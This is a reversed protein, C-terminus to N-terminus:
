GTFVPLSWNSCSCIRRYGVGIAVNCGTEAMWAQSNTLPNRLICQGEPGVGPFAWGEEGIEYESCTLGLITFPNEQAFVSENTFFDTNRTCYSYGATACADDCSDEADALVYDYNGPPVQGINTPSPTNPGSGREVSTTACMNNSRTDIFLQEITYPDRIVRYCYSRHTGIGAYQERWCQQWPDHYWSETRPAQTNFLCWNECLHFMRNAQAERIRKTISGDSDSGCFRTAAVTRVVNKTYFGKRNNPCYCNLMIESLDDEQFYPNCAVNKQYCVSGGLTSWEAVALLDSELTMPDAKVGGSPNAIMMPVDDLLVCNGTQGQNANFEFGVCRQDYACEIKCEDLTYQHNTAKYLEATSGPVPFGVNPTNEAPLCLVYPSDCMDADNGGPWFTELGWRCGRSGAQAIGMFELDEPRHTYGLAFCDPDAAVTTTATPVFTPQKTPVQLEEISVGAATGYGLYMAQIQLNSGWGFGYADADPDTVTPYRVPTATPEQTLELYHEMHHTGSDDGLTAQNWANLAAYGKDWNPGNSDCDPNETYSASTLPLQGNTKECAFDYYTNFNSAYTVMLYGGGSAPATFPDQGPHTCPNSVSCVKCHQRQSENDKEYPIVKGKYNRYNQPSDALDTEGPYMIMLRAMTTMDPTTQWGSDGFPIGSGDTGVGCEFQNKIGAFGPNPDNISHYVIYSITSYMQYSFENCLDGDYKGYIWSPTNAFNDTDEPDACVCTGGGYVSIDQFSIM